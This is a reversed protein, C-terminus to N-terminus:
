GWVQTLKEQSTKDNLKCKREINGLLDYDVLVILLTRANHIVNEM